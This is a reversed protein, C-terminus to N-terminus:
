KEKKKEKRPDKMEFPLDFKESFKEEKEEKVEEKPMEKEEEKPPTAPAMKNLAEKALQKIRARESAERIQRRLEEERQIEEPTKIKEADQSVTEQVIPAAIAPTEQATPQTQTDGKKWIRFGLYAGLMFSPVNLAAIIIAGIVVFTKLAAEINCLGSSLAIPDCLSQITKKGLIIEAFFTPAIFYIVFMLISALVAITALPRIAPPFTSIENDQDRFLQSYSVIGAVIGGVVPFFSTITSFLVLGIQKPKTIEMNTM